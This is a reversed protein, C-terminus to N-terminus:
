ILYKPQWSNPIVSNFDNVQVILDVSNFNINDFAKFIIQALQSADKFGPEFKELLRLGRPYFSQKATQKFNNIFSVKETDFNTLYEQDIKTIKPPKMWRTCYFSLAVTM